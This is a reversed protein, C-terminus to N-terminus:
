PTAQEEAGLRDGRGGVLDDALRLQQGSDLALEGLSAPAYRPLHSTASVPARARTSTSTSRFRKWAMALSIAETIRRVPWVTNMLSVASKPEARTLGVPSSNAQGSCRPTETM